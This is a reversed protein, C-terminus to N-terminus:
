SHDMAHTWYTGLRDNHDSVFRRTWCKGVGGEPFKDGHRARAIEDAHEKLRRHDLPFGREAWYIVENILVEEEQDNM